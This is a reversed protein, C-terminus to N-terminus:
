QRILPRRVRVAAADKRLRVIATTRNLKAGFVTKKSRAEHCSACLSGCVGTFVRVAPVTM